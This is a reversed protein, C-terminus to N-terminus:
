GLGEGPAAGGRAAVVRGALQAALVDSKRQAAGYRRLAAALRGTGGGGDLRGRERAVAELAALEDKLAAAAAVLLARGQGSAHDASALTGDPLAGAAVTLLVAPASPSDGARLTCGAARESCGNVRVAAGGAWAEPLAAVESLSRVARPLAALSTTTTTSPDLSSLLLDLRTGVDFLGLHKCGDGGGSGGGGSGGGGSGAGSRRGRAAAAKASRHHGFFDQGVQKDESAQALSAVGGGLGLMDKPSVLVRAFMFSRSPRDLTDSERTGATSNAPPPTRTGGGAAAPSSAGGLSWSCSAYLSAVRGPVVGGGGGGGGALLGFPVEVCARVTASEGPRLRPCVASRTALHGSASAVTLCVNVVTVPPGAAAAAAAAPTAEAANDAKPPSPNRVHADLCLVRSPPHFRVRAIACQLPAAPPPEEAVREGVQHGSPLTSVGGGGFAPTVLGDLFLRANSPARPSGADEGHDGGDASVDCGGGCASGSEVNATLALKAAELAAAKGRRAQRLQLLRAEEAQVRRRLVGVVSSLRSLRSDKGDAGGGKSPKALAVPSGNAGSSAAVGAEDGLGSSRQRKKGKAAGRPVEVGGTLAAARSSGSAGSEGNVGGSSPTAPLDERRENGWVCSCDTVLARKVLSKLPLQEWGGGGTKSAAVGRKGPKGAGGGSGAGGGGTSTASLLAVQERGNGLFDGKFAAAIGRHEEVVPLDCGDRALLLATGAQDALLVVLVGQADDVAAAMVSSPPAPLLRACSLAGGQLELLAGGGNGDAAATTAEAGGWGGDLAVGAYVTPPLSKLILGGDGAAATGEPLAGTALGVVGSDIDPARSLCTPSHYRSESALGRWPSLSAAGERDVFLSAWQPPLHPPRASDEAEAASSSAAAVAAPLAVVAAGVGNGELLSAGPV